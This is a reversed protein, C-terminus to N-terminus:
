KDLGINGYGEKLKEFGIRINQKQDKATPQISEALAILKGRINHIGLYHQKFVQCVTVDIRESVKDYKKKESDDIAKLSYYKQIMDKSASDPPKTVTFVLIEIGEPDCYKWVDDYLLIKSPTVTLKKV